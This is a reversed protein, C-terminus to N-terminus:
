TAYMTTHKMAMTIRTRPPVDHAPDDGFGTHVLADRTLQVVGVVVGQRRGTRAGQQALARRQEAPLLQVGLGAVLEVETVGRM